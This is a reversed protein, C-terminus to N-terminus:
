NTRFFGCKLGGKYFNSLIAMEVTEVTFFMSFDFNSFKWQKWQLKQNLINELYFRNYIFTSSGIKVPYLAIKGL